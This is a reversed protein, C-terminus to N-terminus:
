AGALTRGTLRSRRLRLLAPPPPLTEAHEAYTKNLLEAQDVAGAGEANSQRTELRIVHDQQLQLEAADEITILRERDPIFSSLVNLLTTKGSGTGGSILINLKAAVGAKLFDGMAPTFAGLDILDGVKLPDKRFKRITLAAGDIALPPIIANVRSGDPLRADCMPCSEDIHRGVRSVIRDIIRVLHRD